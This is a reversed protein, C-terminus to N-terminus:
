WLLSLNWLRRSYQVQCADNETASSLIIGIEHLVRAAHEATIGTELLAPLQLNQLSVVAM